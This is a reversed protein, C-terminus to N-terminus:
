NEDGRSSKRVTKKRASSQKKGAKKAGSKKTATARKKAGSKKAAAKAAKVAADYDAKIQLPPGWIVLALAEFRPDDAIDELASTEGWAQVVYADDMDGGGSGHENSWRESALAVAAEVHAGELRAKAMARSTTPFFPIARQRGEAFIEVLAALQGHALSQRQSLDGPLPPLDVVKPRGQDGHGVVTATVAEDAVLLTAVLQHIWAELEHKAAVKSSQMRMCTPGRMGRLTGILRIPGFDLEVPLDRSDLELHKQAARYISLAAARERAMALQGPAAVPLQGRGLMATMLRAEDHDDVLGQLLKDRLQWRELGDLLERERDDLEEIWEALFLGVRRELFYRTPHAFFAVMDALAVETMASEAEREPLPLSTAVFCPAREREDLLQRAGRALGLDFSRPPTPQADDVAAGFNVPSFAQLPHEHVLVERVSGLGPQEASPSFGRDLVDLLEGLPVAPPCEENTQPSRGSYTVILHDRASVIAELLLHRDEDRPSRDGLKRSQTLLDFGLTNPNRPFSEDDLGVLCLVRRPISRMPVMACFTLAGTHHGASGQPLELKCNLWSHLADVELAGALPRGQADLSESELEDLLDRLSQVLWSQVAQPATMDTMLARLDRIWIDITRPTRLAVLWDFLRECFECFRGLLVVSDGEMDDYGVLGAFEREDEDAMAIGLLLRDLGFRWTHADSEPQGQRARDAADIGWRIGSERIWTELRPLDSDAIAFRERVAEIHLLQHVESATVRSQAMGLLALLARAMPNVSALSRDAVHLPIHPVGTDGWGENEDYHQRGQAFVAQMLPAFTEVDPSMVLIDRPQLTPDEALLKSLADRLVEVQRTAGHCAHIQISDDGPALARRPANDRGERGRDALNAIDSQLQRLLTPQEDEIGDYLELESDRRPVDHHSELLFQLERSVKGLSSLLPHGEDSGLEDLLQPDDHAARLREKRSRLDAWYLHSPSLLYVHIDVHRATALFIDLFSAPLATLGFLHVRRPLESPLRGADIAQRAAYIRQALDPVPLRQALHHWLQPQWASNPDLGENERPGVELQGASWARAMDSRYVAYRDFMDAIRLALQCARREVVLPGDSVSRGPHGLGLGLGLYYRLDSFDSSDLLDPLADLIQWALRAPSWPDAEPYQPLVGQIIRRALAGPFPFDVHAHIGGAPRGRSGVVQSIQQGLWRVMGQSHVAIIDRQMPDVLPQADLIDTLREVLRESRNSRHIHLM